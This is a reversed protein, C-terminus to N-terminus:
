ALRLAGQNKRRYAMFGVGAFGLILMAWTSPEPVSAVFIGGVTGTNITGGINSSIDASFNVNPSGGSSLGFQSASLLGADAITFHLLQVTGQNNTSDISQTFNGFGDQHQSGAPGSFGSSLVTIAGLGIPNFVFAGFATSPQFFYTSALQVTVDVVSGSAAQSLTVTGFPLTGNSCGGTCHDVTLDASLVVSAKADNATFSILGIAALAIAATSFVRM